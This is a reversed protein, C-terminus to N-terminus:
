WASSVARSMRRSTGFCDIGGSNGMPRDALWSRFITAGSGAGAWSGVSAPSSSQYAGNSLAGLPLASRGNLRMSPEVSPKLRIGGGRGYWVICGPGM